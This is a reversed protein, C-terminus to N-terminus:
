SAKGNQRLMAGNIKSNRYIFGLALLVLTAFAILLYLIANVGANKGTNTDNSERLTKISAMLETMMPDSLGSRGKNENQTKELATLRDTIAQTQQRSQEAQATATTTVLNRLADAAAVQQNRLADASATVQSALVAATTTNQTNASAAAAVDVARIANIRDSEAKSLEKQHAEREDSLQKQGSARLESVDKIHAIKEANLVDSATRLDDQRKNAAESLAKVNETPDVVPNNSRDTAPGQSSRTDADAPKDAALAM